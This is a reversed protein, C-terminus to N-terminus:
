AETGAMLRGLEDSAQTFRSAASELADALMYVADAAQGDLAETEAVAQLAYAAGRASTALEDAADEYSIRARAVERRRELKRADEDILGLVEDASRHLTVCLARLQEPKISGLRTAELQEMTLGMAHAVDVAVSFPADVGVVDLITADCRTADM